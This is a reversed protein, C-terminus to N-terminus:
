FKQGILFMLLFYFLFCLRNKSRFFIFLFFLFSFLFGERERKEEGDRAKNGSNEELVGRNTRIWTTHIARKKKASSNGM